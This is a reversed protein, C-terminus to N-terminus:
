REYKNNFIVVKMGIVSIEFSLKQDDKRGYLTKLVEGTFKRENIDHPFSIQYEIIKCYIKDPSM